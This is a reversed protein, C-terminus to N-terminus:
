LDRLSFGGTMASKFECELSLSLTHQEGSVEYAIEIELSREGLATKEFYCSMKLTNVSGAPVVGVECDKLDTEPSTVSARLINIDIANPNQIEVKLCEVRQIYFKARGTENILNLDLFRAAPKKRAVKVLKYIATPVIVEEPTGGGHLYGKARGSRRVTNHGKPLFFTKDDSVFPQKFRHGLIWLNDPIGDVQKPDTTAFRHKEDPFLKNVVSSNFSHKEEELIRCAGHDTVVYVSFHEKPGVWEKALRTVSEAMRTFLRRLEEDYSTNQSEVDSHLLEDGDVFNLLVIAAGEPVVMESMAKLNSLYVVQQNNWDAKARAKLIADYSSINNQWDGSLLVPKNYETITPLAAFRYHLDHRSLGVNRLADDLLSVFELPLCDILLIISLEDGAGSTSLAELCHILSLNSDKHISVYEKIFWESFRIVTKELGEDFYSNHIQWARYPVYEETTWRIWEASSWEEEPRLLAPRSPMISYRLSNLRNESVGPCSRFKAQVKQVDEKTPSFLNGKLLNSVFNYEQFLKGSTWGVVRQFEDSSTVQERIEEFFLEVQTLIQERATPELPLDYVAETPVKRVFRVQEPALVYELLKEPYGHLGAWLSLWQWTKNTDECLRTCIDKVWAENSGAAWEKCKTELCRHLVPYQKFAAKADANVLAKILNVLDAANLMDSQFASGLLHMLLRNTFNMREKQPDVGLELLSQELIDTDTLWDPVQVNWQEALVLRATMKKSSCPCDIQKTFDGLWAFHNKTRVWLKLSRGSSGGPSLERCVRVYDEDHEVLFADDSPIYVLDGIYSVSIQKKDEVTM